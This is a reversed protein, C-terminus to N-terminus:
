SGQVQVEVYGVWGWEAGGKMLKPGEWIVGWVGRVGELCGGLWRGPGVQVFLRGEKVTHCFREGM